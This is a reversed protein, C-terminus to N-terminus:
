RRRFGVWWLTFAMAVVMTAYTSVLGDRGGLVLGMTQVALAVVGTPVSLQAWSRGQMASRWALKVAGAALGAALLAVAGFNVLHWFADLPGM